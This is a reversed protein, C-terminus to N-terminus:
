RGLPAGPSGAARHVPSPAPAPATDLEPAREIGVVIDWRSRDLILEDGPGWLQRIRFDPSVVVAEAWELETGDAARLVASRPATYTIDWYSGAQVSGRVHLKEGLLRGSGTDIVIRTPPRLGEPLHDWATPILAVRDDGPRGGSRPPLGQARWGAIDHGDTGVLRLPRAADEGAQTGGRMDVRLYGTAGALDVPIDRFALAGHPIEAAMAREHYALRTGDAHRVVRLGPQEEEPLECALQTGNFAAYTREGTKQDTLVVVRDTGLDRALESLPFDGDPPDIWYRRPGDQEVTSESVWRPASMLCRLEADVEEGWWERVLESGPPAVLEYTWGPLIPDPEREMVISSPTNGALPWEQRVLVGDTDFRFEAQAGAYAYSVPVRVTLGEADRVVTLPGDPTGEEGIVRLHHAGADIRLYTNGELPLDWHLLDGGPGFSLWTGSAPESLMFGSADALYIRFRESAEGQLQWEMAPAQDISSTAMALRLSDPRVGAVHGGTLPLLNYRVTITNDASPVQFRATVADNEWAHEAAPVPRGGDAPVLLPTHGPDRLAAIWHDGLQTLLWGGQERGLTDHVGPPMGPAGVLAMGTHKELPTQWAVTRRVPNAEFYHRIGTAHETIAFLRGRNLIRVLDSNHFEETLPEIRFRHRVASPGLLNHDWGPASPNTRIRMEVSLQGLEATGNANGALPWQQRILAGDTDFRLLAQRGDPTHAVPVWVSLGRTDRRFEIPPFQPAPAGGAGTVRPDGERGGAAVRLFLGDDLPVERHVLGSGTTYLRRIGSARETVALVFRSERTLPDDTEQTLHELAFLDSDPGELELEPPESVIRVYARLERLHEEGAAVRALPIDFGTLAGEEDFAYAEQVGDPAGPVPFRAAMGASSRAYWAAAEVSWNGPDVLVPVGDPLMVPLRGSVEDGLEGVPIHNGSDDYISKIRDTSGPDGVLRLGVDGGVYLERLLPQGGLRYYVRFGTERDTISVVRGGTDSMSTFLESARFEDTLPDIGFRGPSEDQGALRYAWRPASPGTDEGSVREVVLRLAGLGELHRVAALPREQRVPTGHADFRFEAAPGDPAYSVPLRVTLGGARPHNREFETPLLRRVLAGDADVVSPADKRGDAAVRLFLGDGLPSDRHVLLGRPTYRHRIATAPDTIIFSGTYEGEPETSELRTDAPEFQVPARRGLGDYVKPPRHRTRVLRLGGEDLLTEWAVTRSSGDYYRRNGTAKETLTFATAYAPAPMEQGLDSLRFEETVPQIEFRDASPGALRHIIDTPSPEANWDISVRLSGLEPWDDDAAMPWEQHVLMGEISFQFEARDADAPAYPVPVRVTLKGDAWAFEARTDVAREQPDWLQLGSGVPTVRVLQENGDPLPIRMMLQGGKGFPLRRVTGSGRLWRLATADPTDPWQEPELGMFPRRLLVDGNHDLVVLWRGDPRTNGRDEKIPRGDADLTVAWWRAREHALYTGQFVGNEDRIGFVAQAVEGDPAVLLYEGPPASEGTPALRFLGDEAATVRLGTIEEGRADVLRPLAGGPVFRLYGLGTTRYWDGVWADRMVQTGADDFHYRHGTAMDTLLFGDAEESTSASTSASTGATAPAIDYRGVLESSGQLRYSRIEAGDQARSRTVAATVGPLEVPADAFRLTITEEGYPGSELPNRMDTLMMGVVMDAPGSQAPMRWESRHFVVIRSDGLVANGQSTDLTVEQVRSGAADLRRANRKDYDISWYSDPLLANGQHIGLIEELPRGTEPDLDIRTLPRGHESLAQVSLAQASLNDWLTPRLRVRDDAIREVAWGPLQAGDVAVIEVLGALSGAGVRLYATQGVLVPLERYRLVGDAGYSRRAGTAQEVIIFDQLEHFEGANRSLLQFAQAGAGLLRPTVRLAPIHGGDPLVVINWGRVLEVRLPGLLAEAPGGGTLPLETRVLSGNNLFMYHAMARNPAGPVRFRASLFGQEHRTVDYSREVRLSDTRVLLVDPAHLPAEDAERFLHAVRLERAAVMQNGGVYTARWSVRRGRMDYVGIAPHRGDAVIRLGADPVDWLATLGPAIGYYRRIGTAPEFVAYMEGRFASFSDIALASGRFQPTPPEIVFRAADEPPVVLTHTWTPPTEPDLFPDRSLAVRLSGAPEHPGAWPLQWIQQTLTGNMDFRYEAIAADPAPSAPVRVTLGDPDRTFEGRLAVTQADRTGVLVFGHTGSPTIRASALHHGPLWGVEFGHEAGFPLRVATGQRALWGPVEDLIWYRSEPELGLALRTFLWEVISSYVSVSGNRSRSFTNEWHGLIQGTDDLLQTTGTTWDVRWYAGESFTNMTHRTAIIEEVVRFDAGILLRERPAQSCDAPVLALRGHDAREVRLTELERGDVDVLRPLGDDRRNALFRLYGLGTAQGRDGVWRDQMVLNGETDYYHRHGVALDTIAFAEGYDAADAAAAADAAGAAGPAVAEISYRALWAADGELGYSIVENGHEDWARLAVATLESSEESPSLLPVDRRVWQGQANHEVRGGSAAQASTHGSEPGRIDTLAMGVMVRTEPVSPEPATMQGDQVAAAAWSTPETRHVPGPQAPPVNEPRLLDLTENTGLAPAPTAPTERPATELPLRAGDLPVSPFGGEGLRRLSRVAEPRMVSEPRVLFGAQTTMYGQQANHELLQRVLPPEIPFLAQTLASRQEEGVRTGSLLDLHLDLSQTQSTPLRTQLPLWLGTQSAAGAADLGGPTRSGVFRVRGPGSVVILPPEALGGSGPPRGGPWTVAPHAPRPQTLRPHLGYLMELVGVAARGARKGYGDWGAALRRWVTGLVGRELMAEWAGRFGLVAMEDFTMPTLLSGLVRGANVLGYATHVGAGAVLGPYWKVVRDVDRGVVGGAWRLGQALVEPVAAMVKPLARLGASAGAWIQGVGAVALEPLRILLGGVRMGGVVAFAGFRAPSSLVDVARAGALGAKGVLARAGAGLAELSFLGRTDPLLVGLAAFVLGKGDTRGQAFDVAHMGLAAAGAMVAAIGFEGGFAMALAGLVMATIDLANELGSWIREGISPVKVPQSVMHAADRLAQEMTRAAAEVRERQGEVQRELDASRPDDAKLGEAQARLGAVAGQANALALRYEAVAEGALSFAQAIHYVFAKLRGSVVDRLADATAGEFGGSSASAVVADLGQTVTWTTDRLSSFNDVVQQLVRPDGPVLNGDFGLTRWDASTQSTQTYGSDAASPHSPVIV